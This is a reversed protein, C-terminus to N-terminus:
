SKALSFQVLKRRTEARNKGQSKISTSEILGVGEGYVTKFTSEIPEFTGAQAKDNLTVELAKVVDDNIKRTGASRVTGTCKDIGIDKTNLPVTGSYDWKSNKESVRLVPYPIPLPLINGDKDEINYAVIYVTDGDVRYYARSQEAGNV